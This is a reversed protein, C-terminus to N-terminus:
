LRKQMSGWVAARKGGRPAMNHRTPEHTTYRHEEKSWELRAINHLTTTTKGNELFERRGETIGYSTAVYQTHRTEGM